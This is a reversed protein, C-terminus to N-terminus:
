QAKCSGEIFSTRDELNHAFKAPRVGGRQLFHGFALLERSCIKFTLVLSHVKRVGESSSFPVREETAAVSLRQSICVAVRSNAYLERNIVLVPQVTVV